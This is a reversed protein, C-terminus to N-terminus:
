AIAMEIQGNRDRRLLKIQSNPNPLKSGNKIIKLAM